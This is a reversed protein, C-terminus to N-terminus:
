HKEKKQHCIVTKSFTPRTNFSKFEAFWVGQVLKKQRNLNLGFFDAFL